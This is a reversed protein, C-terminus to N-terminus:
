HARLIFKIHSFSTDLFCRAPTSVLLHAQKHHPPHQAQEDSPDNGCILFPFFCWFSRLLPPLSLFIGPLTPICLWAKAASTHNWLFIKIEERIRPLSFDLILTIGMKHPSGCLQGLSFACTCSRQWPKGAAGWHRGMEWALHQEGLVPM